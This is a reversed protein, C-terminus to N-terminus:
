SLMSANAKDVMDAVAVEAYLGSVSASTSLIQSPTPPASASIGFVLVASVCAAVAYRALVQRRYRRRDARAKRETEVRRVAQTVMARLQEEDYPCHAREMAHARLAILTEFDTKTRM